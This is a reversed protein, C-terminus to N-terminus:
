FIRQIIVRIPLPTTITTNIGFSNGTQNSSALWGMLGIQVIIKSNDNPKPQATVFIQDNHYSRSWSNNYSVEAYTTVDYIFPNDIITSGGLGLNLYDSVPAIYRNGIPISLLNILTGNLRTIQGLYVRNIENNISNFMQFTSINFWDAVGQNTVHHATPKYQTVGAELIKGHNNNEQGLYSDYLDVYIYYTHDPTPITITLDTELPQSQFSRNIYSYILEINEKIKVTNTDVIELIDTQADVDRFTWGSPISKKYGILLSQPPLSVPPISTPPITIKENEVLGLGVQEKTVEHPNDKRNIHNNLITKVDGLADQVMKTTALVEANNSTKDSSVANPINSLGITDKDIGHPNIATTHDNFENILQTLLTSISTLDSEPDIVGKEIYKLKIPLQHLAKFWIYRNEPTIIVDTFGGIQIIYELPIDASPEEPVTGYYVGIPNSGANRLTYSTGYDGVIHWQDDNIEFIGISPYPM